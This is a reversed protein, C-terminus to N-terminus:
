FHLFFVENIYIESDPIIETYGLSISPDKKLFQLVKPIVKDSSKKNSIIENFKRTNVVVLALNTKKLTELKFKESVSETM